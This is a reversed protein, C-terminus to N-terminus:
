NDTLSYYDSYSDPIDQDDQLSIKTRVMETLRNVLIPKVYVYSESLLNGTLESRLINRTFTDSGLLNVRNERDTINPYINVSILLNLNNDSPTLDANISIDDIIYYADTLDENTIGSDPVLYGGIFGMYNIIYINLITFINFV